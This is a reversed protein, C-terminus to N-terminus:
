YYRYYDPSSGEIIEVDLEKELLEKLRKVMINEAYHHIDVLLLNKEIAEQAQHFKTDGTLYVDVVGALDGIFESGSGGCIGVKSITDVHGACQFHELHYAEKVYQLFTDESMSEKLTGIKTIGTADGDHVDQVDLCEILWNNMSVKDLATHSSYIVLHHEIAKYICRGKGDDYDICKLGSFLFPHHTILMQCGKEIAEDITEEDANLSIMIKHVDQQRQGLQLGCNDWEEQLHLPYHQEMVKIIDNAKM